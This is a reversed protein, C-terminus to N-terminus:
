LKINPNLERFRKVVGDELDGSEPDNLPPTKKAKFLGAIRKADAKISDEDDGVLRDAMEFPIGMEIAVRKKVSDKENKAIVADKESIQETLTTKEATLAEVQKELDEIKQNPDKLREALEDPSVYGEFEKRGAEKGELRASGVLKNVEEQTFMKDEAM